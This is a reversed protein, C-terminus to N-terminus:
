YQLIAIDAGDAGTMAITGKLYESIEDLDIAVSAGNAISTFDFGGSTDIAGGLGPVSKTTAGDGDINPTLAGGSDNKIIMIQRRGAQYTFTDSATATTYTVTAQGAGSMNTVAITGM